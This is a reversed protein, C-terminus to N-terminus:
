GVPRRAAPAPALYFLPHHCEPCAQPMLRLLQPRIVLQTGGPVVRGGVFRAPLQEIAPLDVAACYSITSLDAGCAKCRTLVPVGVPQDPTAPAVAAGPSAEEVPGPSTPRDPDKM